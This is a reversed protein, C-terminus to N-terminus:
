SYVDLSDSNRKVLVAYGGPLRGERVIADYLLKEDPTLAIDTGKSRILLSLGISVGDTPIQHPLAGTQRVHNVVGPRSAYLAATLKLEKANLDVASM